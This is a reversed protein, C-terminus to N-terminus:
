PTGKLFTQLTVTLNATTGLSVPAVVAGTLVVDENEPQAGLALGQDRDVLM